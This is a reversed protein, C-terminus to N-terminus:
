YTMACWDEQSLGLAHKHISGGGGAGQRAGRGSVREPGTWKREITAEKAANRLLDPVSHNLDDGVLAVVKLAVSCLLDPTREYPGFIM